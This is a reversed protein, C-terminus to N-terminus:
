GNQASSTEKVAVPLPLDFPRAAQGLAEFLRAPIPIGERKRRQEARYEPENAVLVEEYGPAPASSKVGETFSRMRKLFEALNVFRELDIALFMLSVRQPTDEGARLTGVDPGVPGGSLVASLIEVMMAMGTGKYGGLPTPLGNIAEQPDTIPNGSADTVWGAPISPKGMWVADHIKGLAVTTTAMDLLWGGHESGPVAMCFPNTGLRAERGQWPPVAPSTNCTVIGICGEAAIRQGWYAAAGFHNSNRAVVVSVGFNRGLRVAHAVCREAAIQGFGNHGDYTLCGGSEAAVEGMAQGDISGNVLQGIYPLLMQVGHSDVGRLNAAVLSDGVLEAVEVSVGHRVLLTSCFDRLPQWHVLFQM